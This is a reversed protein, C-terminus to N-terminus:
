LLRRVVQSVRKGDAQGRVREMLTSMVRGMDRASTAGVEQIVQRALAEIEEDSLQRPLYKELVALEAREKAALEQAGLREYEAAAERRRKAERQLIALIQGEDVTHADGSKSEETIATKVARLALKAVEDKERMAQRLDTDIREMLSQESM